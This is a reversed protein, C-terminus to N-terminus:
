EFIKALELGSLASVYGGISAPESIILMGLSISEWECLYLGLIRSANIYDSPGQLSVRSVFFVKSLLFYPPSIHSLLAICAAILKATLRLHGEQVLQTHATHM